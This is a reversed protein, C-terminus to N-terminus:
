KVGHAATSAASEVAIGTLMFVHESIESQTDAMIRVIAWGSGPEIGLMMQHSKEDPCGFNAPLSAEIEDCGCSISIRSDRTVQLHLVLLAKNSGRQVLLEAANGKAWAFRRLHMAPYPGEPALFGAGLAVRPEAALIGASSLGRLTLLSRFAHALVERSRGVRTLERAKRLKSWLRKIANPRSMLVSRLRPDSLLTVSGAVEPAITSSALTSHGNRAPTERCIDQYLACHQAAVRELSFHREIDRRAEAGMTVLRESSALLAGLSYAFSSSDGPKALAGNEGDRITEAMGAVASALVPTGCAMSELMTNPLNDELSPLVFLDSACYALRLREDDDIYGLAHADLGLADMGEAPKGFYALRLPADHTLKSCARFDKLADAVIHFGKRREAGYEVGFLLLLGEEPLGLSKRAHLKDGPRFIHTEVGNSIVEIRKEGLVASGRACDAMWRSPAIITLPGNGYTREKENLMVTALMASRLDLQPCRSCDTEFGRCGSSYHCGGTFAWQDHLTWVVPARMHTLTGITHPSLFFSTWHLHVIDADAVEPVSSLDLGPAGLSFLTNSVATRGHTICDDQTRYLMMRGKVHGGADVAPQVLLARSQDGLRDRVVLRSDLGINRLGESLRWAARAAGGRRDSHNIHRIRM